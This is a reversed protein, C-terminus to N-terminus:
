HCYPGITTGGGRGSSYQFQDFGCTRPTGTYRGDFSPVGSSDVARPAAYQRDSAYPAYPWQGTTQKDKKGADAPMVSFAIALIAFCLGAVSSKPSM